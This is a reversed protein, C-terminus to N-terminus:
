QTPPRSVEIAVPESTVIAGGDQPVFLVRVSAVVSASVGGTEVVAAAAASNSFRCPTEVRISVTAGPLLQRVSFSESANGYLVEVEGLFGAAIGLAKLSLTMERFATPSPAQPPQTSPVGSWPLTITEQTTNRLEVDYVLPEHLVCALPADALLRVAIPSPYNTMRPVPVEVSLEDSPAPRSLFRTDLDPSSTQSTAPVALGLLLLTPILTRM